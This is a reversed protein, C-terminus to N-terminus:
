RRPTHARAAARNKGKTNSYQPEIRRHEHGSSLNREAVDPDPLRIIRKSGRRHSATTARPTNTSAPAAAQAESLACATFMGAALLPSMVSVTSREEYRGLM